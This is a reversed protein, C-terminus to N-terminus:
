HYESRYTIRNYDMSAYPFPPQCLTLHIHLTSYSSYSSWRTYFSDFFVLFVSFIVLNAIIDAWHIWCTLCEPWLWYLIGTPLTLIWGCLSKWVPSFFTRSCTSAKLADLCSLANPELFTWHLAPSTSQLRRFRGSEARWCKNLLHREVSFIRTM